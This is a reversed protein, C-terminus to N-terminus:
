IDIVYELKQIGDTKASWVKFFACYCHPWQTPAVNLVTTNQVINLLLDYYVIM